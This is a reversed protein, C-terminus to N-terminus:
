QQAVLVACHVDDFTDLMADVADAGELRKHFKGALAVVLDLFHEFANDARNRRARWPQLLIDLESNSLAKSAAGDRSPKRCLSVLRRVKSYSCERPSTSSADRTDVVRAFARRARELLADLSAGAAEDLVTSARAVRAGSEGGGPNSGAVPTEDVENAAAHEEPDGGAPEIEPETTETEPEIKPVPEPEDEEEAEEERGGRGGEREAVRAAFTQTPVRRPREAGHRDIWWGVRSGARRFGGFAAPPEGGREADELEGRQALRVIELAGALVASKVHADVPSMEHAHAGAHDKCYCPAPVVDVSACKRLAPSQFAALSGPGPEKARHPSECERRHDIPVVADIALSPGANVELLHPRLSEDLIVDFGFVQFCMEPDVRAHEAADVLAHRTAAVTSAVLTEVRRWLADVDAGEDALESM